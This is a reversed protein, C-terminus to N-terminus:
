HIDEVYKSATITKTSTYLGGFAGYFTTKVSPYTTSAHWAIGSRFGINNLGTPLPISGTMWQFAAASINPYSQAIFTPKSTLDASISVDVGSTGASVGVNLNVDTSDSPAYDSLVGGSNMVRQQVYVLGCPLLNSVPTILTTFGFYNQEEDREDVDQLLTWDAYLYTSQSSGLYCKVGTSSKIRVVEKKIGPNNRERQFRADDNVLALLEDDSPASDFSVMEQKWRDSGLRMNFGSVINFPDDSEISSFAIDYKDLSNEICDGFYVDCTTAKIFDNITVKQGYVYVLGGEKYTKTALQIDSTKMAGNKVLVAVPTDVHNELFPSRITSCSNTEQGSVFCGLSFVITLFRFTKNSM